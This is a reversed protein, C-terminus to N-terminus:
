HIDLLIRQHDILYNRVSFAQDPKIHVAAQTSVFTKPPVLLIIDEKM